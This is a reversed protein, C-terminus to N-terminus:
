HMWTGTTFLRAYLYFHMVIPFIQFIYRVVHPKQTDGLRFLGLEVPGQGVQSTPCVDGGRLSQPPSHDARHLLHPQTCYNHPPLFEESRLHDKRGSRRWDKSFEWERGRRNKAEHQPFSQDLGKHFFTQTFFTWNYFYPQHNAKEPGQVLM